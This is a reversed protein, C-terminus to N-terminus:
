VRMGSYTMLTVFPLTLALMHSKQLSPAVSSLFPHFFDHPLRIHYVPPPAVEMVPPNTVDVFTVSSVLVLHLVVEGRKNQLVGGSRQNAPPMAVVEGKGTLRLKYSKLDIPPGMRLVAGLVKAQPNSAAGVLATAIELHVSSHIGRCYRGRTESSSREGKGDELAMESLEKGDHSVM